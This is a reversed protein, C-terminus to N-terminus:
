IMRIRSCNSIRRERGVVSRVFFRGKTATQPEARLDDEPFHINGSLCAVYLPRVGTNTTCTSRLRTDDEPFRIRGTHCSQYLPGLRGVPISITPDRDCQSMEDMESCAGVTKLTRESIEQLSSNAAVSV